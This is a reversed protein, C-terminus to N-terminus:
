VIELIIFRFCFNLKFLNYLFNVDTAIEFDMADSQEDNEVSDKMMVDDVMSSSTPLNNKLIQKIHMEVEEFTWLSEGTKSNFYYSRKKSESFYQKWNKLNNYFEEEM